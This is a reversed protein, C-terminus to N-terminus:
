DGVISNPAKVTEPYVSVTIKNDQVRRCTESYIIERSIIANVPLLILLHSSLGPPPSPVRLVHIRIESSYVFLVLPIHLLNGSMEM